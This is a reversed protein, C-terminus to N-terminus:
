FVQKKHHKHCNLKLTRTQTHPFLCTIRLSQSHFSPRLTHTPHTIHTKCKSTTTLLKRTPTSIFTLSGEEGKTYQVRLIMGSGFARGNWGGGGGKWVGGGSARKGRLGDVARRRGGMGGCVCM